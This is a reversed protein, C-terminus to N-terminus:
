CCVRWRSARRAHRVDPQDPLRRVGVLRVDLRHQQHSQIGGYLLNCILGVVLAFAIVFATLTVGALLKATVIRMRRPELSFTTMATRQSWESTVLMIGLSRCCSPHSSRPPVWSTATRRPRTATPRRRRRPLHGRGAAGRRHHDRGALPRGPHRHDQAARGLYLRTFPIERRRPSTSPPPSPASMRAGGDSCSTASPTPPSSSSSTRSAARTAPGCTPSCSRGSPPWADSTSRSPPSGCAPRRGPPRRLGEGDAGHLAAPQRARHGADDRGRRHRGQAAGRPHRAGRDQRQRDPDDRRRDARGRAAPPELAARHRGPRRLGQAPRADLPHRGPRPRQCARRPDARTPDGLLAHAIGLRQRM